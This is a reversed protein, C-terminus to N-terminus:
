TKTNNKNPKTALALGLILALWLAFLYFYLVPIGAWSKSTNFFSLLPFNILLLLALAFLGTYRSM